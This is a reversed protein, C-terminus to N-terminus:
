LARRMGGLSRNKSAFKKQRLFEEDESDLESESESTAKHGVGSSPSSPKGFSTRKLGVNVTPHPQAVAHQFGYQLNASLSAQPLPPSTPIDAPRMTFVNAGATAPTNPGSLNTRITAARLTGVNAGTAIPSGGPHSALASQIDAARTQAMRQSSLALSTLLRVVEEDDHLYYHANSPKMGVCVTYTFPDAIRAKRRERATKEDIDQSPTRGGNSSQSSSHHHHYRDSKKGSYSSSVVASVSRKMSADQSPLPLSGPPSRLKCELYDKNQVSLFQFSFSACVLM